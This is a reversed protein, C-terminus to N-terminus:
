QETEINATLTTVQTTIEAITKTMLMFLTRNSQTATALNELAMTHDQQMKTFLAPKAQVSKVNAVCRKTKSTRSSRRKEKFARAFHSKFNSWTKEIRPKRSWERCDYQYLGCKEINAYAMSFIQAPTYPNQVAVAEQNWEIQEIFEKFITEGSIPEKMRQDIGQIDDDELEAYKTILRTLLQLCIVKEFGIIRSSLSKYYKEPILQSVVRKCARDVTHYRNFLRVEHKHTRVLKSFFAATPAPDPIVPHIGPNTPPIFVTVCHTSFVASQATLFLYGLTGCVLTFNVASLFSNLYVNLNTM